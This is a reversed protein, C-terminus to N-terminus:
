VFLWPTLDDLVLKGTGAFGAIENLVEGKGADRSVITEQQTNVPETLQSDL